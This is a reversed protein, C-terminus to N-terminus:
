HYQIMSRHRVTSRNVSSTDQRCVVHKNRANYKSDKIMQQELFIDTIFLEFTAVRLLLVNHKKKNKKKNQKKAM